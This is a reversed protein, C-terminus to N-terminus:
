LPQRRKRKLLLPILSTLLLLTSFGPTITSESTATSETDPPTTPATSILGPNDINFEDSISASQFGINDTNPFDDPISIFEQWGFYKIKGWEIEYEISEGSNLSDPITLIYGIDAKTFVVPLSITDIIENIGYATNEDINYLRVPILEEDNIGSHAPLIVFKCSPNSPSVPMELILM